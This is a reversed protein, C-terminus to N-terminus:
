SMSLIKFYTNKIINYQNHKICNKDMSIKLLSNFNFKFKLLLPNAIKAELFLFFDFKFIINIIFILYSTSSALCFIIQAM